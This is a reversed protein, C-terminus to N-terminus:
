AFPNRVELGDFSQGPNLDESWLIKAGARAATTLIMADWFSIQFRKTSDMAALVDRKRPEVVTWSTVDTVASRAIDFAPEPLHKVLVVFLEQLVQVSVAGNGNQWLRLILDAALLRKRTATQDYAYVFVNTDCFEINMSITVRGASRTTLESQSVANSFGASIRGPM